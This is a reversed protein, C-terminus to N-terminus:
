ELVSRIDAATLRGGDFGDDALVSDFLAAKRAKLAMVKDEITDMAVLRYVMVTRTQGIRHARDIAQAETAPNWWPDLLICYDAESLNLGFGGAKLSILFVPAEGSRFEEVVKARSRTAGDLYCYDIGAAELRVRAKGLFRTFQSFVLARHGEGSIEGLLDLLADLKTSPVADHHPDVLSVDLSAQRLLTLSRFIEFRNRELDGLLGLVKQRERQLYTDYIRRHKPDLPLDVVQEQKPPLEEAVQEKTRRLMLPRIRRRLQALRERDGAGEIPARYHQEFGARHPFLGPTAISMIAWLELLNNEMPTGTIALKFPAPLLKACRYTRAKANKVFQAEDLLLGAWAIAAYDDFELRFLAYSTVVVDAGGAVDSLSVGRRKATESVMRVDLGAAFRECESVWNYVVSTPAVVLFPGSQGSEKAHLVAAIAQVTKGLGMEDALVGGLHHDLLYALWGYGALQYPRLEATLGAPLPPPEVVESGALARVADQWSAAQEGLVGLQELDNWLDVQYRSVRATLPGRDNLARAEAILAALGALDPRDLTFWTGSALVLYDEGRALAVFLQDFPVDEGDVTVTVSLDLWDRQEPLSAAVAVVPASTAERYSRQTGSVEITLGDCDLLAPLLDQHFQLASLGHLSVAAALRRGGAPGPESLYDSRSSVKEVAALIATEQDRDRDRGYGGPPWLPERRDSAGLAYRWSWDLGLVDGDGYSVELVLRPPAPQPLDVDPDRSLVPVHRRLAPYYGRVFAPEDTAPVILRHMELLAHLVPDATVALQALHLDAVDASGSGGPQWWGVGHAPHGFLLLGEAHGRGDAKVLAELVLDGRERYVEIEPLAAGALLRVEGGGRSALVFAVGAERADRLVDWVRATAIADLHILQQGASAYPMRNMPDMAAIERLLRVHDQRVGRHPGWAVTLNSWSIESKIWGGRRGRSVPRIGIRQPSALGTRFSRTAQIVEFQLGLEPSERPENDERLVTRLTREWQPISAVAGSPGGGLSADSARSQELSRDAALFLAVGHKCDLHVPCTCTSSFSSLRGQGDRAVRVLTTYVAGGGGSVEGFLRRRSDGWTARRVAGTRAYSRGRAFTTTGVVREVLATDEVSIHGDDM